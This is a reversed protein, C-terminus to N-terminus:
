AKPDEDEAAAVAAKEVAEAAVAIEEEKIM